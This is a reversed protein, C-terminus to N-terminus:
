GREWEEREGPVTTFLPHTRVADADALAGAREPTRARLKALLHAREFALQGETVPLTPVPRDARPAELIRARDFAYGRDTAEDAVAALYAGVAALPDPTARFRVLQSHNRYGRTRGALVAQALLAERWCATLGQRDLYDPALSWLRM